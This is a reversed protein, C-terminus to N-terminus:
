KNIVKVRRSNTRMGESGKHLEPSVTDLFDTEITDISRDIHDDSLHVYRLVMALTKHGSIRQITPLDIGAEVLKTIGTHRMVHPTVKSPDLKARIVARQFQRDMDRRYPTKTGSRTAPFLYQQGVIRNRREQELVQALAATIPQIRQGAKAEQIYIRRHELDIDDWAIRLIESHRMATNLGIAVFLWACPDQDGVAAKFLAEANENSLVVIKKRPEDEKNIEPRDTEKIWKWRVMTNMLHSLTALERNISAIKAGDDIRKRQYHKVLFSTVQDARRKGFYPILYNQLIRRKNPLDKFGKQGEGLTETLRQLYEKAAEALTKHTKKGKPLDLRDERARTRLVEIAREAQKRTVGESDRGIVRHIRQRDIMVNISYRIDGNTLREATIGHESIKKGSSLARVKPRTLRSFRLSM